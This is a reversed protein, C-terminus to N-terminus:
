FYPAFKGISLSYNILKILLKIPFEHDLVMLAVMFTFNTQWAIARNLNNQEEPHCSFFESISISNFLDKEYLSVAKVFSERFSRKKKSAKYEQWFSYLFTKEVQDTIRFREGMSKPHQMLPLFIESLEIWQSRCLGFHLLFFGRVLRNMKEDMFDNPKLSIWLRLVESVFFDVGNQEKAEQLILSKKSLFTLRFNILFCFFDEKSIFVDMSILFAKLVDNHAVKTSYIFTNFFDDLKFLKERFGVTPIAVPHLDLLASISINDSINREDSWDISASFILVFYELPVQAAFDVVRSYNKSSLYRRFTKKVVESSYSRSKLALYVLDDCNSKVLHILILEANKANLFRFDEMIVSALVELFLNNKCDQCKLLRYLIRNIYGRYSCLDDACESLRINKLLTFTLKKFSNEVAFVFLDEIFGPIIILSFGKDIYSVLYNRASESLDKDYICKILSKFYSFELGREEFDLEDVFDDIIEDSEEEQQQLLIKSLDDRILLHLKVLYKSSEKAMFRFISSVLEPCYINNKIDEFGVALICVLVNTKFDTKLKKASIIQLALKVFYRTKETAQLFKRLVCHGAEHRIVRFQSFLSFLAIWVPKEESYFINLFGELFDLPCEGLKHLIPYVLDVIKIDRLDNEEALHILDPLNKKVIADELAEEFTMSTFQGHALEPVSKFSRLSLPKTKSLVLSPRSSRRSSRKRGGPVKKERSENTGEEPLSRRTKKPRPTVSREKVVPIDNEKSFSSMRRKKSHIPAKKEEKVESHMAELLSNIGKSTSNIDNSCYAVFSLVLCCFIGLVTRM